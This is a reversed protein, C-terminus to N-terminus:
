IKRALLTQLACIPLEDEALHFIRSKHMFCCINLNIYRITMHHIFMLKTKIPKRSLSPTGSTKM